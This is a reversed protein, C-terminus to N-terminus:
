WRMQGSHLHDCRAARPDYAAELREAERQRSGAEVRNEAGRSFGGARLNPLTHLDLLHQVIVAGHTAHNSPIRSEPSPVGIARSYDDARISQARDYCPPEAHHVGGPRAADRKRRVDAIDGLDVIEAFHM